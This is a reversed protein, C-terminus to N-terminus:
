TLTYAHLRTICMYEYRMCIIQKIIFDYSRKRRKKAENKNKKKNMKYINWSKRNKNIQEVKLKIYM